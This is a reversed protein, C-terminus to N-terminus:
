FPIPDGDEDLVEATVTKAVPKAPKDARRLKLSAPDARVKVRIAEVMEGQFEVEARYLNIKQAIWDDFDESGLARAITRANTKNCVLAKNFEEFYIVPKTERDRGIEELAIKEITVSQSGEDPLDGAKLYKSPFADNINM